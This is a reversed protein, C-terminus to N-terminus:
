AKEYELAPSPYISKANIAAPQFIKPEGQLKVSGIHTSKIWPVFLGRLATITCSYLVYYFVFQYFTRQIPLLLLLWVRRERAYVLAIATLALHLVLFWLFYTLVLENSIFIFFVIALLDIIPSLLMFPLKIFLNFPLFVMGLFGYRRKFYLDRYKYLVQMMGLNWRFRQKIFGGFTEPAETYAVAKTAFIVKFKNKQLRVTLDADETLTEGKFGGCRLVAKKRWAGMAGPVVPVSNLMEYARRDLHLGVIYELAQLATLFSNVNGVKLDGATAGVKRNRFPQILEYISNSAIQTDADIIVLYEGRAERAGKNLAHHKGQNLEQVLRIRKSPLFREVESYTQDSSNNDIVLIEYKPYDIKLLSNLTSAITRDENYAPVLISVFPLFRRKTKKARLEKYFHVSAFILIVFISLGVIELNLRFIWNLLNFFNVKFWYLNYSAISLAREWVPVQVMGKEGPPLLADATTFQYGAERYKKILPGLASLTVTRDGGGDHLLVVQTGNPNFGNEVVKAANVREWDFSDTTSPLIKYGRELAGVTLVLSNLSITDETGWYPVRFINARYGTQAQIIKQTFDLEVGLRSQQRYLDVNEPLHSFTHAGIQHGEDVIRKAIQPHRFLQEGVVFFVASVGERKLIDLIQPTYVPDPGDDFTLIVNKESSLQQRQLKLQREQEKIEVFSGLKDVYINDETNTSLTDIIEQSTRNFAKLPNEGITTTSLTFYVLLLILFDFLLFLRQSNSLIRKWRTKSRDYFVFKGM